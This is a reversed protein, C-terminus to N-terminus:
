QETEPHLRDGSRDRIMQLLTSIQIIPRTQGACVLLERLHACAGDREARPSRASPDAQLYGEFEDLALGIPQESGCVAIWKEPQGAVPIGLLVSTRYVPMLRSRLGAVGLLGSVTSRLPVIKARRQLGSLDSLSIALSETGVRCALYNLTERRTGAFAHAFGSDFSAAIKQVANSSM